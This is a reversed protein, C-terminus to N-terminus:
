INATGFKQKFSRERELRWLGLFGSFTIKCIYGQTDSKRMKHTKETKDLLRKKMNKRVVNRFKISDFSKIWFKM